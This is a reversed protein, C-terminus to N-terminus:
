LVCQSKYSLYLANICCKICHRVLGLGVGLFPKSLYMHTLSWEGELLFQPMQLVVKKDLGAIHLQVPSTESALKKQVSVKIRPPYDSLSHLVGSDPLISGKSM